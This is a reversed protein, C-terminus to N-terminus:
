LSESFHRRTDDHARFTVNFTTLLTFEDNSCVETRSRFAVTHICSRLQLPTEISLLFSKIRKQDARADRYGMLLAQVLEQLPAGVLTARIFSHSSTSQTKPSFNLSFTNLQPMFWLWVCRYAPIGLGKDM